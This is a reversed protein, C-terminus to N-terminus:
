RGRRGVGGIPVLVVAFVPPLGKVPITRRDNPPLRASEDGGGSIILAM